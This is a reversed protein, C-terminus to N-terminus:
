NEILLIRRLKSNLKLLRDARKTLVQFTHCDVLNMVGFVKKVYTIPVKKHFLDSMSNVFIMQPKKWRLPLQLSNPHIALEFGNKYNPQGMAKLRKAMREAYCNLCGDSIKTCGTVPNWTSETWEIKTKRM